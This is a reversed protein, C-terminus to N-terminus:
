IGKRCPFKRRLSIHLRHIIQMCLTCHSACRDQVYPYLLGHHMISQVTGLVPDCSYICDIGIFYHVKRYGSAFALVDTGSCLSLLNTLPFAPTHMHYLAKRQQHIGSDILLLLTSPHAWLLFSSLFVLRISDFPHHAWEGTSHLTWKAAL